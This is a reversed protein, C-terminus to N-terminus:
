PAFVIVDRESRILAYSPNLLAFGMSLLRAWQWVRPKFLGGRNAEVQDGGRVGSKKQYRLVGCVCQKLCM